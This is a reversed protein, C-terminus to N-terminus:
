PPGEQSALGLACPVRGFLWFLGLISPPSSVRLPGLPIAYIRQSVRVIRLRRLVEAVRELIPSYERGRASFHPADRRITDLEGTSHISGRRKRSRRTRRRRRIAQFVLSTGM